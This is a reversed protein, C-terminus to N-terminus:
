LSKRFSRSCRLGRLFVPEGNLFFGNEGFQATRFGFKVEQVDLVQDNKVMSVRCTYRYPDDCSWRRANPLTLDVMTDLTMKKLAVAGSEELLEVVFKCNEANEATIELHATETTPTTIYLNSIMSQNRVDLWVERYLGGYTLYDIVFGFPPTEPNETTDLKVAILNKGEQVHDTIEVRFATYGTRHTALEQGNVYVTAIHAAGDFQLFLRKGLMEETVYLIRRYGCVFQYSNHDAYHLPLEQVTHPLRVPAGTGEGCAFSDNWNEIFEWQNCLSIM